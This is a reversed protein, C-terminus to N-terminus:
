IVVRVPPRWQDERRGGVVAAIVLPLDHNGAITQRQQSYDYLKRALFSCPQALFKQWASPRPRHLLVDLGTSRQTTFLPM